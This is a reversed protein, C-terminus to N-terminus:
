YVKEMHNKVQKERTTWYSGSTDKLWKRRMPDKGMIKFFFSVPTFVFYFIISLLIKTNLLGLFHGFIMWPKYIVFLTNPIALAWLVFVSSAIWPGFAMPKDFLWPLVLGFVLAIVLAMVLGFKRYGQRDLSPIKIMKM